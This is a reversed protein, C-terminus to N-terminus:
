DSFEYCDLNEFMGSSDISVLSYIAGGTTIRLNDHQINTSNISIKWIINSLIAVIM